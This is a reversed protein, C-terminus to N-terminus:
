KRILKEAISAADRVLEACYQKREPTGMALGRGLARCCTLKHKKIFSDHLERTRESVLKKDAGTLVSLAMAGGAVAGCVCGSGGIGGGFGCAAAVIADVLEPACGGAELVAKSVAEACNLKKELYNKAAIERIDTMQGSM